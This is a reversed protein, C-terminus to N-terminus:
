ACGRTGGAALFANITSSKWLMRNGMNADPFPVRAQRRLADFTSPSVRCRAAAEPRTLYEENNPTVQESLYADEPMPVDTSPTRSYSEIATPRGSESM